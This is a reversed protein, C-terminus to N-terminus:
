PVSKDYTVPSFKLLGPLLKGLVPPLVSVEGTARNVLSFQMRCPLMGIPNIHEEVWEKASVDIDISDSAKRWALARM